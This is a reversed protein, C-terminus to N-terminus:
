LPGSWTMCDNDLCKLFMFLLKFVIFHMSRNSNYKIKNKNNSCKIFVLKLRDDWRMDDFVFMNDDNIFM